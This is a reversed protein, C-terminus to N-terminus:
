FITGSAWAWILVTFATGAFAGAAFLWWDRGSSPLATSLKNRAEILKRM